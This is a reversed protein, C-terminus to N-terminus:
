QHRSGAAAARPFRLGLALVILLPGAAAVMVFATAPIGTADWVAGGILSTVFACTYSITFMAASLRHVDDADTLLPPLALNLTLGLASCFGLFGVGIISWPGSLGLFGALAALALAGAGVLPWRRAVMRNAFTAVLVSAPLQLLNLSTLAPTILEAHHTAKLYDPVFANTDFYITAACGLVLGVRWTLPSRWDPWWRVPPAGRERRAHPTLLLVAAATLAVPVSWVVFSLPWSGGLLPLLLPVTVSVPIIEGVLLGNSFVATAVGVRRPLWQRVLSPLAPQSVAVGLGMVFTMAFLLPTSSGAGRAAGAVAVLGLGLVLARRAGLRAILLSGPVAAAALLLVPLSTLAGVMTEDLHLTRHIAPLVPPVALLTIRLGAGALWLMGLYLWASADLPGSRREHRTDVAVREPAASRTM